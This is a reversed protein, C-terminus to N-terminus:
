KSVPKGEYKRFDINDHLIWSQIKMDRLFKNINEDSECTIEQNSRCRNVRFEIKSTQNMGWSGNLMLTKGEENVKDPCLLTFGNWSYYYGASAKDTGFDEM